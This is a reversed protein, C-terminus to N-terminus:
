VSIEKKMEEKIKYTIYKRLRIMKQKLESDHDKNKINNNIMKTCEMMGMRSILGVYMFGGNQLLFKENKVIEQHDISDYEHEELADEDDFSIVCVPCVYVEYKNNDRARNYNILIEEAQNLGFCQVAEAFDSYNPECM